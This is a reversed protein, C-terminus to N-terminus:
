KRAIVVRGEHTPAVQAHDVFVANRGTRAKAGMTVLVHFDDTIDQRAVQGVLVVHAVDLANGWAIHLAHACAFTHHVALEIMGLSQGSVEKLYPNLGIHEANLRAILLLGHRM